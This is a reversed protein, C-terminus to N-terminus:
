GDVSTHDHVIRWVGNIRRLVLTFLGGVDKKAAYDLDWRGRAMAVGDALPVVDLQTFALTGREKGAGEYNRRYRALMEDYGRSVEGGSFFTLDPSQWYGIAMFAALDGRNWAAEQARMLIPFQVSAEPQANTASTSAPARCAAFLTLIALGALAATGKRRM